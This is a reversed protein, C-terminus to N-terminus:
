SYTPLSRWRIHRKDTQLSYVPRFNAIQTEVERMESKNRPSRLVAYKDFNFRRLKNQAIRRNVVGDKGPVLMIWSDVSTDRVKGPDLEPLWHKDWYTWLALAIADEVTANAPLILDLLEGSPEAAHPFYVVINLSNATSETPVVASFPNAMHWAVRASLTSKRPKISGVQHRSFDLLSCPMADKSGLGERQSLPNELVPVSGMCLPARLPDEPLDLHFPSYTPIITNRHPRRPAPASHAHRRAPKAPVSGSAFTWDSSADSISDFDSQGGGRDEADEKLNSKFSGTVPQISSIPARKRPPKLSFM